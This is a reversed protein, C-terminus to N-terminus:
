LCTFQMYLLSSNLPTCQKALCLQILMYISSNLFFDVVKKKKEAM